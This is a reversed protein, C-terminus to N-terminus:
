LSIHSKKQEKLISIHETAPVHHAYGAHARHFCVYFQHWTEHYDQLDWLLQCKQSAASVRM